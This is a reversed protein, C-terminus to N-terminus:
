QNMARPDDVNLGLNHALAVIGTRMGSFSKMQDYIQAREQSSAQELQASLHEAYRHVQDVFNQFKEELEDPTFTM